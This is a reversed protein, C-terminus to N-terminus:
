RRSLLAILVGTGAAIGLAALPRERVKDELMSRVNQAEEAVAKVGDQAKAAKEEAARGLHETFHGASSKLASVFTEAADQAAQLEERAARAAIVKKDQGNGRSSKRTGTQATAM